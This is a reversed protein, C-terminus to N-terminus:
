KRGSTRIGYNQGDFCASCIGRRAKIGLLREKWKSSAVIERVSQGNLNGAEMAINVDLTCPSVRGDWAVTFRREKPVNCRRKQMIPDSMVGGFTLIAKTVVTDAARLHRKWKSRFAIEDRENATQRIYILSVKPRNKLKLYWRIKEVLTEYRATGKAGDKTLVDGRPCLAEWTEKTSADLSIRVHDFCRLTEVVTEVTVLSFNTNLTFRFPRSERKPVERVLADFQPHLQQEGFFGLSCIKAHWIAEVITKRFLDPAMFGKPRNFVSGSPTSRKGYFSHPCYVCRFNCKNTLEVCFRM